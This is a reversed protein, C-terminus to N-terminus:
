GALWGPAAAAARPHQNEASRWSLRHETFCRAPMMVGKGAAHFERL